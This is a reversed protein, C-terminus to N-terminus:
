NQACTCVCLEVRYMGRFVHWCFERSRDRTEIDSAENRDNGVCAKTLRSYAASCVNRLLVSRMSAQVFVQVDCAVNTIISQSSFVDDFSPFYGLLCRDRDALGQVCNSISRAMVVTLVVGCLFSM